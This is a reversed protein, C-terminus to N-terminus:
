GGIFPIHRAAYNIIKVVFMTVEIVIIYGFITLFTSVPFIIDTYSLATKFSSFSSSINAVISLDANPFLNILQSFMLQAMEIIINFIM